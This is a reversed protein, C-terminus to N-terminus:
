GRALVDGHANIRVGRPKKPPKVLVDVPVSVNGILPLLGARVTEGKDLDLYIPVLTRFNPSVGDQAVKGKIRVQDGQPELHLDATLRPLETGYVWQRFFWDMRGDGTANLAPVMHREVLRQFDATSAQRGAFTAAYDHMLDIFRHDPAPSAGDWLLMRLMHLVYAGKEYVLARYAFPTRQTILRLGQTLPGADANAVASHPPTESVTKRAEQWVHDYADWGQTHQVALAASFQAFGEELWVDHYSDASVLHGWWQHALEHFGVQDVFDKAGALGLRQRQTGDLFSIYPMFILSPWSQGFLFQSQQTIAVHRDPLPGYYTTFIRAGNIGDALAAEALRGTDVRGLTAQPATNQVSPDGIGRLDRNGSAEMAGNITRIVDPTGPNTFVQIDMGSSADRRELMKFRGYNFGAVRVGGSTRWESASQSGLAHVSVERGVSVVQNGAPVRYALDFTSPDGFVGLNPYWSERARVTYNKDGADDLVAGGQYAIRLLIRTGAALPEPFVVAADGGDERADEQVIAAARRSSPEADEGDGAAAVSGAAGNAANAVDATNAAPASGASATGAGAAADASRAAVNATTDTGSPSVSHTTQAAGAATNAGPATAAANLANATGAGKAVISDPTASGVAAATAAAPPAPLIGYVAELIRLRPMLNIPLVRLGDQLVEIRLTTVGALDTDRLVSTEVRYDVARALRAPPRRRGSEIEGRSDSLYWVGGRQSDEVYLVTQERGLRLNRILGGAGDPDVALLAPPLKAGALLAMFVGSTLHPHNLLDRLLRLQLNLHFDRRQRELWTAYVKAARETQADAAHREIPAALGIEEATDDAFLLVMEDFSEILVEFEGGAGLELALQRREVASAPSLRVTGHGLFVAGITHGAVPALFHLTGDLEFHYADRELVLRHVAATRGDPTAARLAAYTGDAALRAPTAAAQPAAGAARAPVHGVVAALPALLFLAAALRSRRRRAPRGRRGLQGCRDRPGRRDRPGPLDRLGCPDRLDREDGQDRLGCPDREDGRDRPDRPDGRPRCLRVLSRKM